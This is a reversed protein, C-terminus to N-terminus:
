EDAEQATALEFAASYEDESEFHDAIALTNGECTNCGRWRVILLEGAIFYPRIVGDHCWHCLTSQVSRSYDRLIKVPYTRM